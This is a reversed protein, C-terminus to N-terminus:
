ASFMTHLGGNPLDTERQRIRMSNDLRVVQGRYTACKQGRDVHIMVPVISGTGIQQGNYVTIIRVLETIAHRPSIGIPLTMNM